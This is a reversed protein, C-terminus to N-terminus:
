AIAAQGNRAFIKPTTQKKRSFSLAIFLHPSFNSLNLPFPLCFTYDASLHQLFIFFTFSPCLARLPSSINKESLSQCFFVHNM